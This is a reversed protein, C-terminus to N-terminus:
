PVTDAAQSVGLALRHNICHISLMEPKLRKLQTSVGSVRVLMVAAGGSGFSSISLLTVKAQELYTLIAKEITEATGDPIHILKLFCVHVKGKYSVRAYLILEKTVSIDTSEDAMLGVVPSAHVKELVNEEITKSMVDLWEGIIRHSNYTANRGVNLEKLYTCGLEICLELEKLSEFKTFHAAENKSLWYLIKMAGLVTKRKLAVIKEFAHM